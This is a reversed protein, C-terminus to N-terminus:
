QPVSGVARSLFPIHGHTIGLRLVGKRHESAVPPRQEQPAYGGHEKEAEPHSAVALCAAPNTSASNVLSYAFTLTWRKSFSM